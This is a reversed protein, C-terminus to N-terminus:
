VHKRHGAAYKLETKQGIFALRCQELKARSNSGCMHRENHLIFGPLCYTLTNGAM